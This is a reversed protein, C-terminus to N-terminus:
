PRLAIAVRLSRLHVTDGDRRLPRDTSRPRWRRRRHRDSGPRAPEVEGPELRGSPRMPERREDDRGATETSCRTATTRGVIVQCAYLKRSSSPSPMASEHYASQFRRLGHPETSWEELRPTGYSKRKWRASGASAASSRCARRSGRATPDRARGRARARERARVVEDDEGAVVLIHRRALVVEDLAVAVEAAVQHEERRVVEEPSTSRCPSMMSSSRASARGRDARPRARDANLVEGVALRRATWPDHSPRRGRRPEEGSGAQAVPEGNPRPPTSISWDRRSM